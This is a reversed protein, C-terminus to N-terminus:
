RGVQQLRRPVDPMDAVPDDPRGLELLGLKGQAVHQGEEARQEAALDVDGGTVAQPGIDVAQAHGTRGATLVVAALADFAKGMVRTDELVQDAALVDRRVGGQILGGVRLGTAQELDVLHAVKEGTRSVAVGLGM